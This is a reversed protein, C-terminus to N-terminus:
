SWCSSFTRLGLDTAPGGIARGTLNGGIAAISGPLRTLDHLVVETQPALARALPEVIPGIAGVLMAAHAKEEASFAAALAVGADAPQEAEPM